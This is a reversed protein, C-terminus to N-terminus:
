ATALVLVAEISVGAIRKPNQRLGFESSATCPSPSIGGARTQHPKLSENEARLRDLEAKLEPTKM